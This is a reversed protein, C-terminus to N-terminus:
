KTIGHLKEYTRSAGLGLMALILSVIVGADLDPALIKDGVLASGWELLPFALFHAGLALGCIWGIFPRWGAVFITRHGAEIKNIEVQWKDPEQLMKMRLLEAAAKEEPTEVFKDIADAVGGVLGGGAGGVLSGLIKILGM